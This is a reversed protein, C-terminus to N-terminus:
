LRPLFSFGLLGYIEAQPIPATEPIAGNSVQAHEARLWAVGDLELWASWNGTPLWELRMTGMLGPDPVVSTHPFAIGQGKVILLGILGNAGLELRVKEGGLTLHGGLGLSVRSWQISGAELPIARAALALLVLQGGYATRGASTAGVRLELGPAFAGDSSIAGVVGIGVEGRWSERAPTTPPASARVTPAQSTPIQAAEVPPLSPAPATPESLEEEWSVLVVAAARAWVVCSNTGPVLRDELLHGEDDFLRIEVGAARREVMALHRGSNELIDPNLRRIEDRVQDISPCEPGSLFRLGSDVLVLILRAVSPRM